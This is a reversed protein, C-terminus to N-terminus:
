VLSSAREMEKGLGGLDNRHRRLAQQKNASRERLGPINTLKLGGERCAHTQV